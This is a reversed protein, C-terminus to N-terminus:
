RIPRISVSTRQIATGNASVLNGVGGGVPWDAAARKVVIKKERVGSCLWPDAYAQWRISATRLVCRAADPGAAPQVTKYRLTQLGHGWACAEDVTAWKGEWIDEPAGGEGDTARGEEGRRVRWGRACDNQRALITDRPRQKHESSQTRLSRERRDESAARREGRGM